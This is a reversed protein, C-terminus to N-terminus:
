SSRTVMGAAIGVEHPTAIRGTQAELREVAYRVQAAAAIDGGLMGVIFGIERDRAEKAATTPDVPPQPGRQPLNGWIVFGVVGVLVIISIIMQM